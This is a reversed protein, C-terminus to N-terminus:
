CVTVFLSPCVSWTKRGHMASSTRKWLLPTCANSLYVCAPMQSVSRMESSRSVHVLRYMRQIGSADSSDYSNACCLIFCPFQHFIPNLKLFSLFHDIRAELSESWWRSLRIYEPYGGQADDFKSKRLDIHSLPAGRWSKGRTHPSSHLDWWDFEWLRDRGRNLAVSSM